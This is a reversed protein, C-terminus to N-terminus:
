LKAKIGFFELIEESNSEISKYDSAVGPTRSLKPAPNVEGDRFLDRAINQPHEFAEKTELVPTVCSDSGKFLEVWDDRNKTKFVECFLTYYEDWTANDLPSFARLKEGNSENTNQAFINIFAAFFQPELCGVSIFKGDLCEYVNYHPAGLDLMNRGRGNDFFGIKKTDYLFSSVYASGDIMAADIVQGLGSKEREFLAMVVGFAAM